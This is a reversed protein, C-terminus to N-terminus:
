HYAKSQLLIMLFYMWDMTHLSNGFSTRTGYKDWSDNEQLVTFILFIRFSPTQHDTLVRELPKAQLTEFLKMIKCLLVMHAHAILM